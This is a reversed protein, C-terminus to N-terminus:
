RLPTRVPEESSTQNSCRIRYNRHEFKPNCNVRSKNTQKKNIVLVVKIITSSISIMIAIIKGHNDNIVTTIQIM